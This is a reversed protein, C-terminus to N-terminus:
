YHTVDFVAQYRHRHTATDPFNYESNLTSRTIKPLEALEEMAIVALASIQATRYLTGGYSQVAIQATRIEDYKGAGTKELRVYQEPPEEPEEMYVPVDLMGSLYELITKEIM